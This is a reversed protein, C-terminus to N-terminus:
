HDFSSPSAVFLSTLLPEQLLLSSFLPLSASGDKNWQAIDGTKFWGDETFSEKTEKERKFYGKTMSHGRIWVEGQPPDNTSYYNADPVDVLKVEVSPVPVGVASYQFFDPPLIACMGCSETLGYGQLVTVLAHSLFEQTEKSLAAGGSIAYRLRGGTQQKVQKFVIADVINKVPLKGKRLSLAGNFVSEKLKGGAKVKTLIGKRILEWVAPVGIMVTPRYARIDGVCNRVSNDTLTKVTGYGLPVGAFLCTM